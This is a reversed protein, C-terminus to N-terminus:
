EGGGFMDIQRPLIMKAIQKVPNDTRKNRKKTAEITAFRIVPVRLQNGYFSNHYPEGFMRFDALSVSYTTKGKICRLFQAGASEVAELEALMMCISPEYRNGVMRLIGINGKEYVVGNITGIHKKESHEYNYSHIEAGRGTQKVQIETSDNM